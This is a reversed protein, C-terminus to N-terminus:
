LIKVVIVYLYNDGNREHYNHIYALSKDKSRNVEYISNQQGSNYYWNDSTPYINNNSMEYVDGGLITYQENAYVYIAQIAADYKWAIEASGISDLLYASDILGEPFDKPLRARIAIEEEDVFNLAYFCEEDNSQKKKIFALSIEASKQVFESWDLGNREVDWELGTFFYVDDSKLFVRGRLVAANSSIISTIVTEILQSTWSIEGKDLGEFSVVQYRVEDSFSALLKKRM